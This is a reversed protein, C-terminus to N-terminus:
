KIRTITNFVTDVSEGVDIKSVHKELFGSTIMVCLWKPFRGESYVTETNRLHHKILFEKVFTEM